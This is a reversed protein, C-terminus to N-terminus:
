WGGGFLSVVIVDPGAKKGLTILCNNRSEAESAAVIGEELGLPNALVRFKARWVGNELIIIVTTVFANLCEHGINLKNSSGVQLGCKSLKDIVAVRRRGLRLDSPAGLAM